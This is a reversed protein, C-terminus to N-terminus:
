ALKLLMLRAGLLALPILHVVGFSDRKYHYREKLRLSVDGVLLGLIAGGLLDSPFHVGVYLRSLGVLIVYVFYFQLVPLGEFIGEDRFNKLSPLISSTLAMHGSPFAFSSIDELPTVPLNVFPRPRGIALKLTDALLPAASVSILLVALLDFRGKMILWLSILAFFVYALYLQNLVKAAPALFPPRVNAILIVLPNDFFFLALIALFM